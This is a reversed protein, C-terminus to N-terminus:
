GYAPQPNETEVTEYLFYDDVDFLESLAEDPHPLAPRREVYNVDAAVIYRSPEDLYKMVDDSVVLFFQSRSLKVWGKTTLRNFRVLAEMALFYDKNSLQEANYVLYLRLAAELMNRSDDPMDLSLLGTKLRRVM